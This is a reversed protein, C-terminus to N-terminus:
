RIRLRFRLRMLTGSLGSLLAIGLGLPLTYRPWSETSAAAPSLADSRTTSGPPLDGPSSSPSGAGPAGGANPTSPPTAGGTTSSTTSPAGPSASTPADSPEDSGGPSAPASSSASSTANPKGARLAAIGAIAATKLKGTLPAYGPPLDGAQFGPVQGSGTAYALADAYSKREAAPLTIHVAAYIPMTLPYAGDAYSTLAATTPQLTGSASDTTFRSAAAQLTATTAGVCHNGDDDCLSATSLRYRAADGADTIAMGRRAGVADHGAAAKLIGPPPQCGGGDGGSSPCFVNHEFKSGYLVDHATITMNDDRPLLDSTSERIPLDGNRDYYLWDPLPYPSGDPPYTQPLDVYEKPTKTAARDAEAQKDLRKAYAECGTYTRSSYFPNIVVGNPDPCGSLFAAAEPDAMLWAWIQSAADSRGSELVLSSLGLLGNGLSRSNSDSATVHLDPNIAQFEPDGFLSLPREGMWSDSGCGANTCGAIAGQYSQTLLKAVLLPSLRLDQIPQGARTLDAQLTDLSDYGCAKADAETAVHFIDLGSAAACAPNYDITLGIVPGTLATPVYATDGSATAPLPQSTVIADAGAAYQTRAVQDALRSFGLAGGTTNCIAPAWAATAASLMESGGILVRNSDTGCSAAVDQYSLKIQMRQAWISPSFPTTHFLASGTTQDLRPVVVLWCASTSPSDARRGCGLGPAESGTVTEFSRTTVGNPPFLVHDYENTSTQNFYQNAFDSTVTTGDIANFPVVSTNRWDGSGVLPDVGAVLGRSGLTTNYDPGLGAYECTTPDPDTADDAATNHETSGSSTLSGWCEMVQVYAGSDNAGTPIDANVGSFDLTIAQDVLDTTQSVKVTLGGFGDGAGFDADYADQTKQAIDAYTKGGTHPILQRQNRQVVTGPPNGANDWRLTVASNSALTGQPGWDSGDATGAAAAPSPTGLALLSSIALVMGATGAVLHTTLLRRRTRPTMITQENRANLQV